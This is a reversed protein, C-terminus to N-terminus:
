SSQASAPRVMRLMAEAMEREGMVVHNAGRASLHEIEADYHARAVIEPTPGSTGAHLVCEAEIAGTVFL